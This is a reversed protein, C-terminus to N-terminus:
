INVTHYSTNMKLSQSVQANYVSFEVILARTRNDIWSNNQLTELRVMLADIHGRFKFEYGGGSYKNYDAQFPMAEREIETKYEYEDMRTCNVSVLPQWGMCYIKDDEDYIPIKMDGTCSDVYDRMLKPSHCNAVKERVQRM